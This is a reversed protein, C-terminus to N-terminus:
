HYGAEPDVKGRFVWYSYATYAIILPLLIAAGVLMFSLSADPAAAEHITVARPVIYPAIGIGLGAFCLAFLGIVTPFPIQDKKKLLSWGLVAALIATLTPVPM